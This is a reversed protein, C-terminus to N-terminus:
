MNDPLRRRHSSWSAWTRSAPSLKRKGLMTGCMNSLGVCCTARTMQTVVSRRVSGGDLQLASRAGPAADDDEVVAKRPTRTSSPPAPAATEVNPHLTFTNRGADQGRLPGCGGGRGAVGASLTVVGHPGAEHRIALARFAAQMDGVIQIAGATDTEPLLIAFEEGGFRAAMDGPRRLVGQLAASIARLCADGDMATPHQWDEDSSRFKCGHLRRCQDKESQRVIVDLPETGAGCEHRNKEEIDSAPLSSRSNDAM